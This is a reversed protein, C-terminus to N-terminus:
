PRRKLPAQYTELRFGRSPEVAYYDPKWDGTFEIWVGHPIGASVTWFGGRYDAPLDIAADRRQSQPWLGNLYFRRVVRFQPDRLQVTQPSVAGCSVRLTPRKIGEPLYFAAM